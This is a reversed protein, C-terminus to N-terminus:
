LAKGQYHDNWDDLSTLSSYGKHPNVKIIEKIAYAITTEFAAKKTDNTNDADYAQGETAGWKDEVKLGMTFGSSGTLPRRLHTDGGGFFTSVADKMKTMASDRYYNTPNIYNNLLGGIKFANGINRNKISVHRVAQLGNLVWSNQETVQQQTLSGISIRIHTYWAGNTYITSAADRYAKNADSDGLTLLNNMNPKFAETVGYAATKEASWPSVFNAVTLSTLDITLKKTAMNVTNRYPYKVCYDNYPTGNSAYNAGADYGLLEFKNAIPNSSLASFDFIYKFGPYLHYSDISTWTSTNVGKDNGFGIIQSPPTGKLHFTYDDIAVIGMNAQKYDNSSSTDDFYFYLPMSKNSYQYMWQSVAQGTGKGSLPFTNDLVITTTKATTDVTIKANSYESGGGHVGLSTESVRLAGANPIDSWDFVYTNGPFLCVPTTNNNSQAYETGSHSYHYLKETYTSHWKQSSNINYEQFPRTQFPLSGGVLSSDTTFGGYINVHGIYDTFGITYLYSANTPKSADYNYGDSFNVANSNTVLNSWDYATGNAAAEDGYRFVCEFTRGLQDTTGEIAQILNKLTVNTGCEFAIEGGGYQSIAENVAVSTGSGNCVFGMRMNANVYLNDQTWNSNGSGGPDDLDWNGNGSVITMTMVSSFNTNIYNVIDQCTTGYPCKIDITVNPNSVSSGHNLTHGLTAYDGGSNRCRISIGFGRGDKLWNRGTSDGPLTGNWSGKTESKIKTNTAGSINHTDFFGDQEGILKSPQGNVWVNLNTTGSGYKRPILKYNITRGIPGTSWGESDTKRHDVELEIENQSPLSFGQPIAYQNALSDEPFNEVPSFDIEKIFAAGKGMISMHDAPSMLYPKFDQYNIKNIFASNFMLNFTRYSQNIYEKTWSVSNGSYTSIATNLQSIASSTDSPSGWKLKKESKGDNWAKILADRSANILNTNYAGPTPFFFTTGRDAFVRSYFSLESGSDDIKPLKLEGTIIANNFMFGFGFIKNADINSLDLDHCYVNDFMSGFQRLLRPKFNTFDCEVQYNAKPLSKTIGSSGDLVDQNTPDFQTKRNGGLYFLMHDLGSSSEVLFGGGEWKFSKMRWQSGLGDRYKQLDSIGYTSTFGQNQWGFESVHGEIVVTKDGTTGGYDKWLIGQDSSTYAVPGGGDGWDITIGGSGIVPIRIGVKNAAIHAGMDVSGVMQGALSSYETSDAYTITIKSDGSRPNNEEGEAEDADLIGDGDTDLSDLDMIWNNDNNFWAKALGIKSSTDLIKSSGSPAIVEEKFKWHLRRASFSRPNLDVLMWFSNEGAQDTGAEGKYVAHTAGPTDAEGYSYKTFLVDQDIVKSATDYIGDVSEYLEIEYPIKRTQNLADQYSLTSGSIDSDFFLAYKGSKTFAPRVFNDTKKFEFDSDTAHVQYFDIVEDLFKLSSPYKVRGASPEIGASYDDLRTASFAAATGAGEVLVLNNATPDNEILTKIDNVTKSSAAGAINITINNSGDVSVNDSGGQNERLRITKKGAQIGKTKAWFRLSGIIALAFTGPQLRLDQPPLKWPDGNNPGPNIQEEDTRTRDYTAMISQTIYTYIKRESIDWNALQVDNAIRGSTFMNSTDTSPKIQMKELGEVKNIDCGNFMSDVNAPDCAPLKITGSCTCNQFMSKLISGKLDLSTLDLNGNITAGHFMQTYDAASAFTIHKLAVDVDSQNITQNQFMNFATTVKESVIAFDQDILNNLINFKPVAGGNFDLKHTTSLATIVNSNSFWDMSGFSYSSFDINYGVKLKKSSNTALTKISKIAEESASNLNLTGGGPKGIYFDDDILLTGDFFLDNPSEQVYNSFDWNDMGGSCTAASLPVAATANNTGIFNKVRRFGKWVSNPEWSDISSQDFSYWYDCNEWNPFDLISEAKSGWIMKYLNTMMNMGLGATVPWGFHLVDGTISITYTQSASGYKHMIAKLNAESISAQNDNATYGFANEVNTVVPSSLGQSTTEIYDWNPGVETTTGDGWNIKAGAPGTKFVPVCVTKKEDDTPTGSNLQALGKATNVSVVMTPKNATTISVAISNGMQSHASCYYHLTEATKSDVEIKTTKAVADKTVRYLYETGGNHTGDSTESFRFPHSPAGSWDFIYDKGDEFTLQPTQTPTSYSGGQIFYKGGSATVTYSVQPRQPPQADTSPPFKDTNDSTIISASGNAKSLNSIDMKKALIGQVPAYSSKNFLTYAVIVVKAGAKIWDELKKPDAKQGAKSIGDPSIKWPKYSLYYDGEPIDMLDNPGFDLFGIKGGKRFRGKCGNFAREGKESARLTAGLNNKAYNIVFSDVNEGYSEILPVSAYVQRNRISEEAFYVEELNDYADEDIVAVDIFSAGQLPSFIEAPIEAGNIQLNELKFWIPDANGDTSSEDFSGEFPTSIKVDEINVFDELNSMNAFRAEVRTSLRAQPFTEFASIYDRATVDEPGHEGGVQFYSKENHVTRLVPSKGRVYKTSTNDLDSFKVSSLNGDWPEINMIDAVQHFPIMFGGGPTEPTGNGDYDHMDTAFFLGIAKWGGTIAAKFTGNGLDQYPRNEFKAFIVTGSDGPQINHSCYYDGRNLEIKETTVTFGGKGDPVSVLIDQSLKQAGGLQESDRYRDVQQQRAMRVLNWGKLEIESTKDRSDRFKMVKYSMPGAIRWKPDATGDTAGTTASSTIMLPEQPTGQSDLGGGVDNTYGAWFSDHLWEETEYESAFTYPTSNFDSNSINTLQWSNADIVNEDLAIIGVDLAFEDAKIIKRLRPSSLYEYGLPMYRKVKGIKEQEGWNSMNSLDGQFVDKDVLAGGYGMGEVESHILMKDTLVHLNTVGVLTGDEKDKALCGLTGYSKLSTSIATGCKIPRTRSQNNSPDRTGNCDNEYAFLRFWRGSNPNKVGANWKELRQGEPQNTPIDLEEALKYDDSQQMIFYTKGDIKIGDPMDKSMEDLEVLITGDRMVTSSKLGFDKLLMQVQKQIVKIEKNNM